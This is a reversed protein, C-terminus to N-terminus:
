YTVQNALMIHTTADVNPKNALVGNNKCNPEFGYIPNDTKVCSLLATDNSTLYVCDLAIM